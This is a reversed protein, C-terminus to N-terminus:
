ESLGGGRDNTLPQELESVALCVVISIYTKVDKRNDKRRGENRRWDCRRGPMCSRTRPRRSSPAATLNSGRRGGDEEKGRACRLGKWTSEVMEFKGLVRHGTGRVGSTSTSPGERTREHAGSMREAGEGAGGIWGVREGLQESEEGRKEERRREEGRKGERRREEGRKAERRVRGARLLSATGVQFQVSQSPKPEWYAYTCVPWNPWAILPVVM